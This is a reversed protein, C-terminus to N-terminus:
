RYDYNVITFHKRSLWLLRFSCNTKFHLFYICLSLRTPLLSVDIQWYCLVNALIPEYNQCIGVLRVSEFHGFHKLTTGFHRFKALDPWVPLYTPPYNPLYTSNGALYTLNFVFNQAFPQKRFCSNPVVLRRRRSVHDWTTFYYFFCTAATSTSSSSSTSLLKLMLFLFLCFEKISNFHSWIALNNHFYKAMTFFSLQIVAFFQWPTILIKGCVLYVRLIKGFIKLM